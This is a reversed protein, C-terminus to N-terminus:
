RCSGARPVACGRIPVSVGHREREAMAAARVLQRQQVLGDALGEDGGGFAKGLTRRQHHAVLVDAPAVGLVPAFDVAQGRRQQREADLGTIADADPRRVAVLPAQRLVRGRADARDHHADIGGVAEVLELVRQVLHLALDDDRGLAELGAVIEAHQLRQCGLKRAGRGSMEVRVLQRVQLGHDAHAVRNCRPHEIEGRDAGGDGGRVYRADVAHGCLQAGAVRDVDLEGAAGGAIGLAGRQRVEVDQVVAPDHAGAHAQGLAVPQADRYRQIMAEAHHHAAERADGVARGRHEGRIGEIREGREFGHGGLAARRQVAHRRHEDGLEIMRAEGFEIERRKAGADHRAGGARDLDHVAHQRLHVHRLDQDGVALGLGAGHVVHRAGVVRDALAHARDAPGRRM